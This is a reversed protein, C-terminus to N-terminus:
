NNKIKRYVHRWYLTIIHIREREKCIGLAADPYKTLCQQQVHEDLLQKHTPQCCRVARWCPQEQTREFNKRKGM